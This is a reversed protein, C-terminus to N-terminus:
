GHESCQKQYAAYGMLGALDSENGLRVRAIWGSGFPDENLSHLDGALTSNVEIV